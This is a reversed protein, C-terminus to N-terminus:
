ARASALLVGRALRLVGGEVKARLADVTADYAKQKTADDADKLGRGAAGVRLASGAFNEIDSEDATVHDNHPTVEVTAFGAGTLISRVRDADCLAFPGPAGPEPMAPPANTVSMVAMAPLTMWENALAAQWCVFSLRGAPTLARRVNAFAAVPDSYFMVGFRSFAADFEGEDFQHAQVDAHVFSVNTVEGEAARQRARDLMATAIDMGVVRGEPGVRSALEVTTPGTGCGLDVVRDGSRLDLRDMAMRGVAGSTRELRGEMEVWTPAMLAWEEAQETNVLDM